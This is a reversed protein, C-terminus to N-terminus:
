NWFGVSLGVNLYRRALDFSTSIAWDQWYHIVFVEIGGTLHPRPKKAHFPTPELYLGLRSRVINPVTEHEVGFHPAVQTFDGIVEASSNSTFARIPVANEVPAILDLQATLLWEGRPADKPLQPGAAEVGLEATVERHAVPSLRNYNEAGKGLRFSAGVSLVGPALVASFLQRNEIRPVQTGTPRYAGLVQPKVSLGVRYPNRRPRYLLAIELGTNGYRRQEDRLRFTAEASYVGAAFLFDDQGIAYAAAVATNSIQVSIFDGSSCVENLCFSQSVTRYYAGLGFKKYQMLLGGQLQSVTQSEDREGDNDLDRFRPSGLPLSQLSFTVGVDFDRDLDPARHALSALNSPFGAAGEAVGTYAGGLGVVRTSGLLTGTSLYLREARPADQASATAGFLFLLAPWARLTM